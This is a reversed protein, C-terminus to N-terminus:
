LELHVVNHTHSLSINYNVFTPIQQQELKSDLLKNKWTLTNYTLISFLM